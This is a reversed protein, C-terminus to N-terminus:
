QYCFTRMEAAANPILLTPSIKFAEVSKLVLFTVNIMSIEKKAPLSLSFSEAAFERPLEGFFGSDLRFPSM